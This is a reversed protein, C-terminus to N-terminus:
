GQLPVSNCLWHRILPLAICPCNNTYTRGALCQGLALPTDLQVFKYLHNALRTRRGHHFTGLTEICLSFRAMRGLELKGELRVRQVTRGKLHLTDLMYKCILRLPLELNLLHISGAREALWSCLRGFMHLRTM